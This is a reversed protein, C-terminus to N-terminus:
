LRGGVFSELLEALGPDVREFAVGIRGNGPDRWAVRGDLALPLSIGPLAFESTVPDGVRPPDGPVELGIGGASLDRGNGLCRAGDAMLEVWGIFRARDHRRPVHQRSGV